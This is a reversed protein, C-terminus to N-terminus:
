KTINNHPQDALWGFLKNTKHMNLGESRLVYGACRTHCHDGGPQCPRWQRHGWLSIRRLRESDSFTDDTDSRRDQGTGCLSRPFILCNILCLRNIFRIFVNKMRTWCSDCVLLNTISTSLRWEREKRRGSLGLTRTRRLRLSVHWLPMQSFLSDSM